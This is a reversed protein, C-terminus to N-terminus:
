RGRGSGAEGPSGFGGYPVGYPVPGGNAASRYPDARNFAEFTRTAGFFPRSDGFPGSFGTGLDESSSLAALFLVILSALLPQVILALWSGVEVPLRVIQGVPPDHPMPHQWQMIQEGVKSMLYAGAVSGILLGVQLLPGRARRWRWVGIATLVGLVAGICVFIALADFQHASEGTLAAGKAPVAGARAKVVLFQETPAIVAWVVGGLMSVLLVGVAILAAARLERRVGLRQVSRPAALSVDGYEAVM